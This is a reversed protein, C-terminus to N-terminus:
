HGIYAISSIIRQSLSFTQFLATPCDTDFTSECHCIKSQRRNLLLSIRYRYPISPNQQGWHEAVVKSCYTDDAAGITAFVCTPVTTGQANLFHGGVRLKHTFNSNGGVRPNRIELAFRSKKGSIQNSVKRTKYISLLDRLYM